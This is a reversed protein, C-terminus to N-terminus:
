IGTIINAGPIMQLKVVLNHDPGLRSCLERLCYIGVAAVLICGISTSLMLSCYHTAILAGVMLPFFTFILKKVSASWKFQILYRSIGLAAISYVFNIACFAAAVGSLGIWQLGVWILCLHVIHTLIESILYIKGVGKALMIYGLPWAVVRSLCGLILWQLLQASEAFAGTYFVTIIWPALVLTALLGPVALLLGIETQYNVLSRMEEHRNSAATLQPYFDAGMANLIFNLFMGSLRFAAMYIGVSVLDVYNSIMAITAYEVVGTMLATTMFVGGLLMLTKASIITECWTMKVPKVKVKRSYYFSAILVSISITIIAPIIGNIGLWYYFGIAAVTASVSSIINVRALDGIRRMGQLLAMQGAAISGLFVSVGLCRVQWTYESSGFSLQGIPLALTILLIAGILGTLWCLRRLTLVTRSIHREDETGSAEAVERVGSSNIGLGSATAAINQISHFIGIIGVGTPGILLAVCKVRVLGLLLNFGQAGGMISSSKLIRSYTKKAESM